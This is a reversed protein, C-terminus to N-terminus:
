FTIEELAKDTEQKKIYNIVNESIQQQIEQM